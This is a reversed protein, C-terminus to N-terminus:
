YPTGCANKTDADAVATFADELEEHSIKDEEMTDGKRNGRVMIFVKRERTYWVM